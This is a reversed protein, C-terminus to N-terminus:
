PTIIMMILDNSTGTWLMDFTSVTQYVNSTRRGRTMVTVWGGRLGEVVISVAPKM